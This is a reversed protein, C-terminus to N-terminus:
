WPITRFEKEEGGVRVRWGDAIRVPEGVDAYHLMRHCTACVAVLYEPKLCDAPPNKSLQFLHHVECYPLGNKKVFHPRNCIQCCDGRTSKVFRTIRSPREYQYIVRRIKKLRDPATPPQSQLDALEDMLKQVSKPTTPEGLFYPRVQEWLEERTAKLYPGAVRRMRPGLDKKGDLAARTGTILGFLSGKFKSYKRGARLQPFLQRAVHSWRTLKTEYPVPYKSRSSGDPKSFKALFYGVLTEGDPRRPKPPKQDMLAKILVLSYSKHFSKPYAGPKFSGLRNFDDCFANIRAKTFRRTKKGNPIYVIADDTVKVAFPRKLKGTVWARNQNTRAFVFLADATIEV